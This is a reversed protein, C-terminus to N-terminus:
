GVRRKGAVEEPEMTSSKKSFNNSGARYGNGPSPRRPSTCVMSLYFRQPFLKKCADLQHEGRATNWLPEVATNKLSRSRYKRLKGLTDAPASEPLQREKNIILCNDHSLKTEM